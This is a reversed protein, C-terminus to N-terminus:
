KSAGVNPRVFGIFGLRPRKKGTIFHQSPLFEEKLNYDSFQTNLLQSSEKPLESEMAEQRYEAQITEDLFPFSQKYGTAMIILDAEFTRGDDFRITKGDYEVGVVSTKHFSEIPRLGEEGYVKMWFRGILSKSKVPVNLHSMAGHSKNIIHYGRKVPTTECVWQNFGVSSGTLFLFSRIVITSLIWRLRLAHVWPHEYSHEFLNTIFVDLPRDEALNHPISLFGRRVNLAVSTSNPNQVARLAIDMATEGSGLILVRKNDFISSDKYESSHLISGKFSSELSIINQPINPVNHLGSCVACVDYYETVIETEDNVTTQQYQVIYGNEDIDGDGNCNDQLENTKLSIVKCGFKICKSVHFKEAYAELYKVYEKATPHNTHTIPYCYEVQETPVMRFDSFATIYKSSVLRAGDYVKNIFTGGVGLESSDSTKPQAELVTVEYLPDTSELLYKATVLGSAGAGIVVAKKREPAENM